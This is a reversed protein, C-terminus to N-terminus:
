AVSLGVGCRSSAPRGSYAANVRERLVVSLAPPPPLIREPGTGRAKRAALDDLGASEHVWDVLGDRQQPIFQSPASNSVPASATPAIRPPMMAEFAL